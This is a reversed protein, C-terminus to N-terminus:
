AKIAKIAFRHPNQEMEVQAFGAQRLARTMAATTQFSECRKRNLPFRWQKGTLHFAVGNLLAYCFYITSKPNGAKLARGLFEFVMQYPHLTLWLHGGPTLVRSIEALATPIHMYPVAVRSIVVEFSADAFPLAEGVACALNLHGDRERDLQAHGFAVAEEDIDIGCALVDHHLNCALLTQGAGCGIDLISAFCPPLPPLAKRADTSSKAIALEELHYEVTSM